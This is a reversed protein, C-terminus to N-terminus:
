DSKTKAEKRERERERELRRKVEEKKRGRSRKRERDGERRRQGVESGRDTLGGKAEESQKEKPDGEGKQGMERKRGKRLGNLGKGREKVEQSWRNRKRDRGRESIRDSGSNEEKPDEREEKVEEKEWKGLSSLYETCTLKHITCIVKMTPHKIPLLSRATLFTCLRCNIDKKL